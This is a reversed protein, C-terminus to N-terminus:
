ILEALRQKANAFDGCNNYMEKAEETMGLCEYIVGVNYYSLFSNIGKLDDTEAGICSLYSEIAEKFMGNDRFIHGSLFRFRVNDGFLEVFRDRLRLATDYQGTNILAYGYCDILNYAYPANKDIGIALVRGFCECARQLDRDECFYSKGLQYLMFIDDPRKELEMLLLRENRELKGLVKGYQPLYGHHNFTVDIEKTYLYPRGDIARLQEHISGEFKYIKRNYLRPATGKLNDVLDIFGVMGVKNEEALLVEPDSINAEVVEEDADMWLIWDNEAKDASFNRAASFDDIWIFDFVRAGNDSAIQKTKDVSGTDVVVIDTLGMVDKVSKIATGLFAEENKVIFCASIPLKYDV